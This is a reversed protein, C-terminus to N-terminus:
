KKGPQGLVAIRGGGEYKPNSTHMALGLKNTSITDQYSNAPDPKSSCDEWDSGGSSGWSRM